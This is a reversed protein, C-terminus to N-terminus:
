GAARQSLIASIQDDTDGRPTSPKRASVSTDAANKDKPESIANPTSASADAPATNTLLADGFELFSDLDAVLEKLEAIEKEMNVIDNKYSIRRQKAVKMADTM